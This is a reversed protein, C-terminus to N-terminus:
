SRLVYTHEVHFMTHDTRHIARRILHVGFMVCLLLGRVLGMSGNNGRGGLRCRGGNIVGAVVSSTM